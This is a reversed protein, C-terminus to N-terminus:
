SIRKKINEVLDLKNMDLAPDAGCQLYNEAFNILEIESLTHNHDDPKSSKPTAKRKAIVWCQNHYLVDNAMADEASTINNLRRFFSRETLMKSVQLMNQGTTKFEIQHVKGGQKQYIICIDKM